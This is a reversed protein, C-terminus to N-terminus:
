NGGVPNIKGNATLTEPAAIVGGPGPIKVTAREAKRWAQLRRKTRLYEEYDEDKDLKAAIFARAAEELSVPVFTVSM